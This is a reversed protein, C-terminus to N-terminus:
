ITSYLIAEKLLKKFVKIKELTEPRDNYDILEQITIKQRTFPHEAKNWLCTMFMNKDYVQEDDPVFCPIVIACSSIPDIVQEYRDFLTMKKYIDTWKKMTPIHKNIMTTQLKFIGEDGLTTAIYVISHKNENLMVYFIDDLYKIINEDKYEGDYVSLLITPLQYMLYSNILRNNNEIIFKISFLSKELVNDDKIKSIITLLVSIFFILSAADLIINLRKKFKLYESLIFILPIIDNIVSEDAVYKTYLHNIDTILLNVNPNFRVGTKVMKCLYTCRIDSPIWSDFRMIFDLFPKDEQLFVVSSRFINFICKPIHALYKGPDSLIFQFLSLFYSQIIDACQHVKKFSTLVGDKSANLTPILSKIYQVEQPSTEPSLERMHLREIMSEFFNIKNLYHENCMDVLKYIFALISRISVREYFPNTYEAKLIPPEDILSPIVFEFPKLQSYKYIIKSLNKIIHISESIFMENVESEDIMCNPIITRDIYNQIINIIDPLKLIKELDNLSIEKILQNIPSEEMKIKTPCKYYM